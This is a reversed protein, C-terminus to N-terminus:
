AEAPVVTTLSLTETTWDYAAVPEADGLDRHVVTGGIRELLGPADLMGRTASVRGGLRPLLFPEASFQEEAVLLKLRDEVRAGPTPPMGDPLYATIRRGRLAVGRAGPAIFDGTFLDAHVRFRPTLDLLVCYLRRDSTNHLRIFVEPPQWGTATRRYSVRVGDDEAEPVTGGTRPAAPQGAAAELVEIRVLGSLESSPNTLTSLVLWRAIHEMAPVAHPFGVEALERGRGDRVRVTGGPEVDARLDAGPGPGVVRLHPSPGSDPATTRFQQILQRVLDPDAGSISVTRPPLPMRTVVVPYQRDRDPEWGDRPQVASRQTRVEIVEAERTPAAAGRVGVRLGPEQALGHLAGADIEWGGRSFRMRM